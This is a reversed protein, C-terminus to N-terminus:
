IAIVRYGKRRYEAVQADTLWVVFRENEGDWVQYKRM